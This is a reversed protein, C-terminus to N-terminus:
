WNGWFDLLVVKGRYDSLKFKKGDIDEGEIEPAPKGVVIPHRLGDLITEASQKMTGGTGDPLDGYDKALQEYRNLAEKRLKDPDALGEVFKKGFASEYRKAQEPDEKLDEALRLRFAAQQALVLSAEGQIERSPNKEIVARLFKPESEGLNSRMRQIFPRLKDSRVHDRTLMTMAKVHPSKPDTDRPSTHGAVWILADVAAPAKPHKEALKQLRTVYEDLKPQKERMVKQRDQPKADTVAKRFDALAKDYEAVIAKYEEAPTAPKDAKDRSQLAPVLALLVLMGGVTRIM